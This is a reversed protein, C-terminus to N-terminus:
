EPYFLFFLFRVLLFLDLDAVGSYSLMCFVFYKINNWPHKPM